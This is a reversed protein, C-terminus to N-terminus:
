YMISCCVVDAYEADVERMRIYIRQFLKSNSASMKNTCFPNLTEQVFQNLFFQSRFRNLVSMNGLFLSFDVKSAIKYLTYHDLSHMVTHAFVQETLDALGIERLEERIITRAKWLFGMLRTHRMHVIGAHTFASWNGMEENCTSQKWCGYFMFRNAFWTLPSVFTDMLFYHLGTTIKTVDPLFHEQVEPADRELQRIFNAGVIHIKSHHSIAIYNAIWGFILDLDTTTEGNVSCHIISHENFSIYFSKVLTKPFDTEVRCDDIKIYYLGEEDKNVAVSLMTSTIIELIDSETIKRAMFLVNVIAHFFRYPLSILYMSSLFIVSYIFEGWTVTSDISVLQSMPIKKGLYKDKANVNSVEQTIVTM